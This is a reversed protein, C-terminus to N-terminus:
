EKIFRFTKARKEKVIKLFYVGKSFQETSIQLSNITPNNSSAIVQGLSNYIIYADPFDNSSVSINLINHVPNPYLKIENFYNFENKNLFMNCATSTKLSKRRISNNMVALIRDKQNITFINMCADNTYDMYNEPMDKGANSFCTDYVEACDYHEYGSQPTDACYDSANCDTKGTESDGEGDGWIHLLGLYHGVEHTATRGKDYDPETLSSVIDSSGFYRYDIVVGDTNADGEDNYLGTLKSTSPFQAYGLTGFMESSQTDSFYVTWINLYDDPNWQTQSKMTETANLTKYNAASKQIRNIGNTATGDPKRQALCFEIGVDAGVLNNNYGRTDMMRRFDQNLVTIQSMAQEDSINENTGIADGNHIIHIVVPITIIETTKNYNKNSKVEQIKPALWNQFEESNLRNTNNKRLFAEYETSACRVKGSKTKKSFSINEQGFVTSTFNFFLATILLLFTTIKNM